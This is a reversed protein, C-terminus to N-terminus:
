LELLYSGQRYLALIAKTWEQYISTINKDIDFKKLILDIVREEENHLVEDSYILAMIELLFVRQSKKSKVLNLIKNLEFSDKDFEIDQIQMETCYTKIIDQEKKSFDDDARAIFHALQLFAEKEEKTLFQLFM